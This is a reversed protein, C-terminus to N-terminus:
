RVLYGQLMDLLNRDKGGTRRTGRTSGAIVNGVPARTAPRSARRSARRSAQRRAARTGGRQRWAATARGPRRLRPATPMQPTEYPSPTMNGPVAMATNATEVPSPASQVDPYQEQLTPPEPTLGAAAIQPEPAQEPAEQPVQVDPVGAQMQDQTLVQPNMGGSATPAPSAPPASPAGFSTPAIVQPAINQVLSEMPSQPQGAETISRRLNSIRSRYRRRRSAARPGRQGRMSQLRRRFRDLQRRGREVNYPEQITLQQAQQTQQSGTQTSAYPSQYSSASPAVLNEYGAAPTAGPPLTYGTPVPM